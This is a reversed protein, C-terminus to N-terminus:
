PCQYWIHLVLRHRQNSDSTIHALLQDCTDDLWSLGTCVSAPFTQLAVMTGLPELRSQLWYLDCDSVHVDCIPLLCLGSDIHLTPIAMEIVGIGWLWLYPLSKRQNSYFHKCHMFLFLWQVKRGGVLYKHGLSQERWFGSQCSKSVRGGLEASYLLGAEKSAQTCYGGGQEVMCSFSGPHQSAEM